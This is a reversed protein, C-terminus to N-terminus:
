MRCVTIWKLAEPDSDIIRLQLTSPFPRVTQPESPWDLTLKIKRITRWKTDTGTLALFPFNEANTLL